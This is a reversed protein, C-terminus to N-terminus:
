KRTGQGRSAGAAAFGGQTWFFLFSVGEGVAMKTRTTKLGNADFSEGPTSSGFHREKWRSDTAAFARGGAPPTAPRAIAAGALEHHPHWPREHCPAAFVDVEAVPFSDFELDEPVPRLFGEFNGRSTRLGDDHAGVPRLM